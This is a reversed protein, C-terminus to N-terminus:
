NQAGLLDLPPNVPPAPKPAAARPAPTAEARPVARPKPAPLVNIAPPLPPAANGPLASTADSGPAPTVRRRPARCRKRRRCTRRVCSAGNARAGAAAAGDRRGAEVAAGHARLALWSALANADITRTPANWRGKLAISLTPRSGGASRRRGSLTLVADLTAEALDVNASASLDAGSTQTVICQEAAGSRGRHHDRGRRAAGAAHREGAGDDVFDRIRNADTPIGLDVARIVADFVRPNLGALQANELTINGTGALSGIFAAPSRGSAELEARLTLRARSRRGSGMAASSPRRM